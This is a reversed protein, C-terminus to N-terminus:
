RGYTSRDGILLLSDGFEHWLYDQSVAAQYARRVVTEGGIATILDLHSAGPEHWGSVIGDVARVGREPTIILDTVGAGPHVVGHSDTVTEVARVSTTGVAIVRGGDQRTRNIASATTESVRYREGDPREGAEFSAVGSHLVVPVIGVGNSILSVVLGNSFPRAASPMEVSGPETSFVTQYDTLPWEGATHSYRIPSGERDLYSALDSIGAIEAIWLRPSRSDPVLLDLSVGGPLDVRGGPFDRWPLTGVGEHRRPEVTWLHDTVPSSFHIRVPGAERSHGPVSAALTASSNVVLLDGPHLMRGIDSFRLHQLEGTCADVTMLKVGDRALGRREPPIAVGARDPIVLDTLPSPVATMM